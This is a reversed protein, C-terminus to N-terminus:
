RTIGREIQVPITESRLRYGDSSIFLIDLEARGLPWSETLPHGILVNRTKKYSDWEATLNAILGTDQDNGALRLQAYVEWSAFYGDKFSAPIEIQYAFTSGRKFVIQTM